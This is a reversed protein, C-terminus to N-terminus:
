RSHGLAASTADLYAFKGVMASRGVLDTNAGPLAAVHLNLEKARHATVGGNTGLEKDLATATLTLPRSNKDFVEPDTIAKVVVENALAVRVSFGPKRDGSSTIRDIRITARLRAVPFGLVEKLEAVPDDREDDPYIAFTDLLADATVEDLRDDVFVVSESTGGRRRDGHVSVVVVHRDSVDAGEITSGARFTWAFFGACHDETPKDDVWCPCVVKCNCCEIFRGTLHYPM